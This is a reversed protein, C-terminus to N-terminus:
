LRTTAALREPSCSPVMKEVDAPEAFKQPVPIIANPISRLARIVARRSPM